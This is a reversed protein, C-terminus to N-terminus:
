KNYQNIVKTLADCCVPCFEDSRTFMICDTSSRYLGKSLYGAGEFAGVTGNYKMKGFMAQEQSKQDTFLKEMVSEDVKKARLEARKKKVKAGLTDFAKKGWPTPLPTNKKVLHGWKLNKKDLLATINMEWPEVTVNSDVEYSVSSSYYEDALGAMHHGMEHVMIYDSFKNDVALTTYLKYIGAGGYTKENVLIVMFEYPVASAVDRVTRNDYTLAYRESDFSSYHVSLPTRKFVGPHPKCVGSSAAPTEVVWVNFDKRHSSFPKSDLMVKTLREADKKFKGMEKASYGDGLVVIDVKKAPAGNKVIAYSRFPSKLEGKNVKRAAPDVTYNWIEKFNNKKDRKKMVVKVSKRPWPFRISEHFTGWERKAEPITQWEGFISAFGRSYLLTDTGADRVEFYYLGLNLKDVLVTRSGPWNGDNLIRDVAFHETKSNGTHFYDLRMTKNSFFRNYDVDGTLFFTSLIFFLFLTNKM